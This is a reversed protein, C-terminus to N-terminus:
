CRSIISPAGYRQVAIRFQMHLYRALQFLTLMSGLDYM